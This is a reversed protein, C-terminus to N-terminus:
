VVQQAFFVHRIMPSIKKRLSETFNVDFIMNKKYWQTLYETLLLKYEKLRYM